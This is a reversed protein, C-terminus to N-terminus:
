SKIQLTMEVEVSVGLPLSVSGVAARAHKGADGFLEVMLDSAGNAVKPQDTFSPDSAVFVGLRVVQEIRELDGDLADKAVALANIACLRAAVQAEELSASSPVAGRCTLEGGQIPVQGSIFLLNGARCAPVYSAVPRPAEPLVIGLRDLNQTIGAM